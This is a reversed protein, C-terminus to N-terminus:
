KEGLLEAATWAAARRRTRKRVQQVAAEDVCSAQHGFARRLYSLVQALEADSLHSQGPMELDWREGDVEIPGRVGHLAIRVLRDAPGTVWESDRLPPALGRQGSGDLQHCAACAGRFVVAGREVRAKEDATLSTVAGPAAAGGIRVAGLLTQAHGRTREDPHQGLSVLQAPTGGLDLWGVRRDGNPLAKSAGELLARRMATSDTRGALALLARQSDADRSRMARRSLDVVAARWRRRAAEDGRGALIALVAGIRPHAATAVGRPEARAVDLDEHRLADGVALAAHWRVTPPAFADIREIAQWVHNDRRALPAGAHQWAFSQVGPDLDRVFRRVESDTWLGLGALASLAATRVAARDHELQARVAREADRTRQQVLHQLALDRVTGSPHALAAAAESATARSLRLVPPVVGGAKPVIRWIRGKHIPQELGRREVQDRLFSTVYNRHQIVGRYMDVVYLAGDPGNSLN